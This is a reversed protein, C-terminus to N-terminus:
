PQPQWAPQVGPGVDIVDRTILDLIHVTRPETVQGFVEGRVYAISRGNPSWAPSHTAGTLLESHSGDLGLVYLGAFVLEEFGPGTEPRVCLSLNFSAAVADSEPSWDFGVLGGAMEARERLRADVVAPLTLEQHNAGGSGAVFLLVESACASGGFRIKQGVYRGDPSFRAATVDELNVEFPLLQQTGDALSVAYVPAYLNGTAGARIMCNVAVLLTDNAPAFVPRNFVLRDDEMERCVRPKPGEQVPAAVDLRNLEAGDRDFVVIQEDVPVVYMSGDGSWSGGAPFSLASVNGETDALLHEPEDGDIAAPVDGDIVVDLVESSVWSFSQVATLGLQRENEGDAGVLWIDGDRLFALTEVAPEPTATATPPPLTSTAPLATPTPMLTPTSQGGGGCAATIVVLVAIITGRVIFLITARSCM